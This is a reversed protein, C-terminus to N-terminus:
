KPRLLEQFQPQTRMAEFNPSDRVRSPPYGAAVSKKLWELAEESEGLQNYVIAADFLLFPDDPSVQLGRHLAELAPKREKLMAQCIALIGYSQSDRPNIRIDERAIEIAQRYARASEGRKGPTWFYGDGLNWWVLPDREALKVAQEYARDAEEYRRLYFYSNGLNTYGHASPRIAISRELVSIAETYRAQEVYAAGLNSYGRFSDPALAVVQSFMEVAERFRAHRYFFAGLWNYTAWYHPRLAIARRYTEEAEQFKGLREYADALGHHAADSTPENEVASEFEVAAQQYNGTGLFLSGLCAHAASLQSDLHNAQECAQRSKEIWAPDKSSAYKKWYADGLGAFASAYNPDLALARQFVLIASDVNEVRDYNQLYGRGQLYFDYARAVQTGHSELAQRERGQVTLELMRLAGDVVADQAGFPDTSQVTLSSARIQRLTQADVLVFNVRIEGGAKHLSGSLALNAGFEKRADDVTGIHKARIETAPVVQLRPDGTLQTLKATLTETLGAGFAATEPDGGVVSFPLVAVQKAGPLASRDLWGRVLPGMPVSLAAVLLVLPLIVGAWRLASRNLPAPLVRPLIQARPASWAPYGERELRGLEAALERASQYRNKPEKESCKGIIRDLEPPVQPNLRSAPPPPRHLIAGILQSIEVEAFARRGTSMEFLVLGAAHIDTRGDIEEGCVQEPSMYALTGTIAWKDLNTETTAGDAIPRRLKALGFDLIKLRGDGTVRLNGPKLDRHVVGHEHAASLGEALQAGLRLVEEQPLPGSAVRESLAAGAIYEMVLFDVGQETDFDFITAINPHNLRSLAMAEKRFQKRSHEDALTGPPLVKIAVERDLHEDRARYVEGMGGAGIKEAVRYHGLTLGALTRESTLETPM